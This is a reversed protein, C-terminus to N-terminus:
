LRSNTFNWYICCVIIDVSNNDDKRKFHYPIQIPDSNIFDINNYKLYMEDLFSKLDNRTEFRKM